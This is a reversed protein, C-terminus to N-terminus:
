RGPGYSNGLAEAVVEVVDLVKVGVGNEEVGRELTRLCQQCATVIAGAGTAALRKVTRGAVRGVLEPDVMELDGGGGCCLGREGREEAEALRLGPIAALVKRPAQYVGGNRGLDCPDHYTVTRGELPGPRLRGQSILRALFETAHLLEVGPLHAAYEDRWTLRCAPCTFLVTQAGTARVQELNHERLAKAQDTLGAALLPYGCCREEALITFDVGAATLGRVFAPPIRQQVAPSFSAVCGVFYVVGAHERQYLTEPADPMYEAWAAREDNPYAYVNGEAAIAKRMPEGHPALGRGAAERRAALWLQRLDIGAPCVRTCHGCLTCQYLHHAQGAPLTGKDRLFRTLRVRGRPSASEWGVGRYTPCVARCYGCRACVILETDLGRYFTRLLKTM